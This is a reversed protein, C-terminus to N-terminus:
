LAIKRYRKLWEVGLETTEYVLPSNTRIRILGAGLLRSLYREKQRFDLNSKYMIRTPRAGDRTVSLIEAIIDYRGRRMIKAVREVKSADKVAQAWGELYSELVDEEGHRHYYVLKSIELDGNVVREIDVPGMDKVDYVGASYGRQFERKVKGKIAKVSKRIKSITWGGKELM